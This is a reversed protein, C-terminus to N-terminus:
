PLFHLPVLSDSSSVSLPFHFLQKFSLMLFVFIMADPGIVEHCISPFVTYVTVSKIEQAEFVSCITVIVM